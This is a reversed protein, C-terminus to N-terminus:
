KSKSSLNKKDNQKFYFSQHDLSKYYNKENVERWIKNWERRAKTWEQDKQRLRSLVIPITGAVVNLLAIINSVQIITYLTLLKQVKRETYERLVAFTCFQKILLYCLGRINGDLATDLRFKIADEESMEQISKLVPELARVTSANLEIVLDLEFRDDECKFLM